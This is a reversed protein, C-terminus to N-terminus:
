MGEVWSGREVLDWVKAFDNFFRQEGIIDVAQSKLTSANIM